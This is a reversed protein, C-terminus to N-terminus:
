IIESELSVERKITELKIDRVKDSILTNRKVEYSLTNREIANLVKDRSNSFLTKNREFTYVHAELDEPNLYGVNVVRRTLISKNSVDDSLQAYISMFGIPYTQLDIYGLLETDSIKQFIYDRRTEEVDITYIDQFLSLSENSLIRVEIVNEPVSYSPSHITLIPSTTDLELTFWNSM